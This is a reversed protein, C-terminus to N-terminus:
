DSESGKEWAWFEKSRLRTRWRIWLSLSLLALTSNRPNSWKCSLPLLSKNTSSTTSYWGTRRAWSLPCLQNAMSQCSSAQCRRLEQCSAFWSLTIFGQCTSAFAPATMKFTRQFCSEKAIQSRPDESLKLGNWSSKTALSPASRIRRPSRLFGARRLTRPSMWFLQLLSRSLQSKSLSSVGKASLRCSSNGRHSLGTGSLSFWRSLLNLTERIASWWLLAWGLSTSGKVTQLGELGM